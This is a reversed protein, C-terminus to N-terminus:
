GRGAPRSGGLERRLEGVRARVEDRVRRFGADDLRAPDDLAWDRVEVGPPPVPCAGAECGMTIWLSATALREPTLAQPPHSPAVVGVEALMPATRPNPRAAPRSGASDATWGPPPDDNFFAEAM